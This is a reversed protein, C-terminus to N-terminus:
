RLEPILRATRLCKRCAQWPRAGASSYWDKGGHCRLLVPLREIGLKNALTARHRGEHGLVKCDRQRIWLTPPDVPKGTEILRKISRYYSSDWDEHTDEINEGGRALQLFRTPTLETYLLGKPHERWIYDDVAERSGEKLSPTFAPSRKVSM